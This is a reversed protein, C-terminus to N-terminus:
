SGSGISISRLNMDNDYCFVYQFATGVEEYFPTVRECCDNAICRLDVGLDDGLQPDLELLTDYVETRPMGQYFLAEFSADIAEWNRESNLQSAIYLKKIQSDLALSSGITLLILVALLVILGTIKLTLRLNKNVKV